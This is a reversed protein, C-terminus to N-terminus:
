RVNVSPHRILRGFKVHKFGFRHEEVSDSVQKKGKEALPLQRGSTVMSAEEEKRMGVGDAHGTLKAEVAHGGM